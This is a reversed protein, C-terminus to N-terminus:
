ACLGNAAAEAAKDEDKTGGNGGDSPSGSPSASPSGSPTGPPEDASIVEDRFKKTLPKDERILAWLRDAEPAWVLRNPDPEYPEFPVTIFM